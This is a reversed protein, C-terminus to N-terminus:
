NQYLVNESKNYILNLKGMPLSMFGLVETHSANRSVAVSVDHVTIVIFSGVHLAIAKSCAFHICQHYEGQSCNKNLEGVWQNDECLWQWTDENHKCGFVVVNDRQKM